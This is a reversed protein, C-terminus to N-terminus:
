HRFKDRDSPNEDLKMPGNPADLVLTALAERFKKNGDSLDGNVKDLAQLAATTEDYYNVACLSPSAFRKEPRWSDKYAKVFAQWKADDCTDAYPSASVTGIL